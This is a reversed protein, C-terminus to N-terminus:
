LKLVVVVVVVVLLLFNLVGFVNLCDLSEFTCNQL